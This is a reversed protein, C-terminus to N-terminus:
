LCTSSEIIITGPPRTGSHQNPMLGGIRGSRLKRLTTIAEHAPHTGVV